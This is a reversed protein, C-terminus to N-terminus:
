LAFVDPLFVETLLLAKKQLHFLSYRSWLERFLDSICVSPTDLLTTMYNMIHQHWHMGSHLCQYSFDSRKMDPHNFLVTGLSQSQLHMLHSEEGTLLAPPFISRAFMWYKQGSHILVERIMVPTADDINLLENEWEEAHHWANFLVNVQADLVSHDKLRQMFSGSHLLWSQSRPSVGVEQLIPSKQWSSELSKKKM